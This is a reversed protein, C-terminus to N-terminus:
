LKKSSEESHLVVKLQDALNGADFDDRNIQRDAFELSQLGLKAASPPSLELTKGENPERVSFDMFCFQM